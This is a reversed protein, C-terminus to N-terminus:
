ECAPCGAVNTLRVNRKIRVHNHESLTLTAEPPPDKTFDTIVRGESDLAGEDESGGPLPGCGDDPHLLAFVGEPKCVLVGNIDWDEGKSTDFVAKDAPEDLEELWTVFEAFRRVSDEEEEAEADLKDHNQELGFGVSAFGGFATLDLQVNGPVSVSLDFGCSLAHLRINSYAGLAVEFDIALTESLFEALDKPKYFSARSEFFLHLTSLYRKINM